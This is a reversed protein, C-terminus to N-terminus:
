DDDPPKSEGESSADAKVSDKAGPSKPALPDLRFLENIAPALEDARRPRKLQRQQPAPRKPQSPKPATQSFMSGPISVAFILFAAIIALPRLFYMAIEEIVRGPTKM